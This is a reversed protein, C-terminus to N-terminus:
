VICSHNKQGSETFLILWSLLKRRINLFMGLDLVKVACLNFRVINHRKILRQGFTCGFSLHSFPYLYGPLNIFFATIAQACLSVAIM